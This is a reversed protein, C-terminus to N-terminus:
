EKELVKDDEAAKEVANELIKRTAYEVLAHDDKVVMELGYNRLSIFEEESLDMELEVYTKNSEKLIEM